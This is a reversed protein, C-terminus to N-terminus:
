GVSSFFDYVNRGHSIESGKRKRGKREDTTLCKPGLRM